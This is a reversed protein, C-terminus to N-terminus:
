ASANQAPTSSFPRQSFGVCVCACLLLFRFRCLSHDVSLFHAFLAASLSFLGLSRSENASVISNTKKQLPYVVTKIRPKTFAAPNAQSKATLETQICEGNVDNVNQRQIYYVCAVVVVCVCFGSIRRYMKRWDVLRVYKHM